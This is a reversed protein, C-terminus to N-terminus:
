LEGALVRYAILRELCDWDEAALHSKWLPQNAWVIEASLNDVVIKWDSTRDDFLHEYFAVGAANWLDKGNRQHSCWKAFGYIKHLTEMDQTARAMREMALLDGFLSYITMRPDEITRRLHPFAIIARRKWGAM